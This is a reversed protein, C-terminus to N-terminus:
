QLRRIGEEAARRVPDSGGEPLGALFEELFERVGPTALETLQGIIEVRASSALDRRGLITTLPGRMQEFPTRGLYSLFREVDDPQAVQAIATPAQPVQRDWAHFLEDVAARAGLTGLGEAAAGRVTGDSDNLAAILARDAGRPRCAVIARVAAARIRARRHSTLRFLVPAAQPRGLIMLTDVALALVDTPLGRGIRTSIAGVARPSGSLGLAEIAGRVTALNDSELQELAESVSPTSPQARAVGASMVGAWVIMAYLIQARRM